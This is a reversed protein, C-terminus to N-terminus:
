GEVARCLFAKLYRTEPIAPHVPHDPSQGGAALIQLWRGNAQAAKHLIGELADAALHYSCSCSVILGDRALLRLCEANLRKYAAEGKPADKKRKVFAPPDVIVLDFRENDAALQALVEFADGKLARLAIGHRAANAGATALASASADVISLEPSEALLAARVGWAGAYGFVDLIRRAGRAYRLFHERNATQDYYWGTKQGQALSAEFSLGAERVLVTDPVTGQATEVYRPLGELDRAGGDNKLLIGAPAVLEALTDILLAKQAEMGATALQMVLVEGYRDVVLGPLGDAEGYCLRYYPEPYLRERLALAERLRHRFLARGPPRAPHRSLLRVSILSHPNAYGYGLFRGRESHVQVLAGPEVATLPTEQTDIENSFVWLHGALLRREERRKLKLVPFSGNGAEHEM